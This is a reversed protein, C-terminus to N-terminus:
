SNKTLYNRWPRKTKTKKNRNKRASRRRFRKWIAGSTLACSLPFPNMTSSRRHKRAIPNCSNRWPRPRKKRRKSSRCRRRGRAWARNSSSRARPTTTSTSWKSRAKTRAGARDPAEPGTGAPSKEGGEPAGEMQMDLKLGRKMEETNKVLKMEADEPPPQDARNFCRRKTAARQQAREAEKEADVYHTLHSAYQEMFEAFSAEQAAQQKARMSGSDQTFFMDALENINASKKKRGVSEEKVTEVYEEVEALTPEEAVLKQDMNAFADQLAQDLAPNMARMVAMDGASLKGDPAIEPLRDVAAVTVAAPSGQETQSREITEPPPAVPASPEERSAARLEALRERWKMFLGPIKDSAPPTVPAQEPAAVDAPTRDPADRLAREVPSLVEEQQRWSAFNVSQAAILAPVFLLALGMRLAAPKEAVPFYPAAATQGAVREGDEVALTMMSSPETVTRFELANSIRDALGARVDISRAIRRSSLGWAAYILCGLIVAVVVRWVAVGLWPGADALGRGGAVAVAGAAFVAPLTYSGAHVARGAFARVRARRVLSEIRPTMM